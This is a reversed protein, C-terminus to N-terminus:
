DNIANWALRLSERANGLETLAEQLDAPDLRARRLELDTEAQNLLDLVEQTAQEFTKRVM